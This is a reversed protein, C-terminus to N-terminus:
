TNGLDHFVAGGGSSRRALHMGDRAYPPYQVKELSKACPRYGRDTRPAMLIVGASQDADPSFHM